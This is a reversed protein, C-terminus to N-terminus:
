IHILSLGMGATAIDVAGGIGGALASWGQAEAEAAQQAYAATEAQAMGLLTSQKNLEMQRSQIEGQREMGQIRSAEQREAM